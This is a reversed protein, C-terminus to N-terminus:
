YGVPVIERRIVLTELRFFGDSIRCVLECNGNRFAM